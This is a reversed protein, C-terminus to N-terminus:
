LLRSSINEKAEINVVEFNERKFTTSLEGFKPSTGQLTRVKPDSYFTPKERPIFQASETSYL